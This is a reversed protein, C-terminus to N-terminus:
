LRTRALARVGVCGCVYVYPCLAYVCVRVCVRRACVCVRVRAYM